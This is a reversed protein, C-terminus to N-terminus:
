VLDQPVNKSVDSLVADLEKVANLLNQRQILVEGLAIKPDLSCPKLILFINVARDIEWAAGAFRRSIDFIKNSVRSLQRRFHSPLRKGRRKFDFVTTLKGPTGGGRGNRSKPSPERSDLNQM